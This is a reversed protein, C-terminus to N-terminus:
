GLGSRPTEPAAQDLDVQALVKEESQEPSLNVAWGGERDNGCVRQAGVDGDEPFCSSGLIRRGGLQVRLSGREGPYDVDAFTSDVVARGVDSSDDARTVGQLTYTLRVLLSPRVLPVTLAETGVDPTEPLRVLGQSTRVELDTVVAPGPVQLAPFAAIEVEDIGESARLWHTVQVSGDDQVAADVFAGRDPLRSPQEDLGGPVLEVGDRAAVVDGGGDGDGGGRVLVLAVVAVAVLALVAALVRPRRLVTTAAM